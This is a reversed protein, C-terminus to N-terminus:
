KKSEVYVSYIQHALVQFAALSTAHLLAATWTMGGQVLVAMGGVWSLALILALRLSAKAEGLLKIVTNSRLAIMIVQIVAGVLALGALKGGSLQALIQQIADIDAIPAAPDAVQALVMLPALLLVFVSFFLKM